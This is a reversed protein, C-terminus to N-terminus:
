QKGSWDEAGIAATRWGLLMMLVYVTGMIVFVDALKGRFSRQWKRMRCIPLDFGIASSAMQFITKQCNLIRGSGPDPNTHLLLLGEDMEADLAMDEAECKLVTV